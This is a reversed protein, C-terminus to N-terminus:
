VPLQAVWALSLEGPVGIEDLTQLYRRLSTGRIESLSVGVQSLSPKLCTGTCLRCACDPTKRSLMEALTTMVDLHM